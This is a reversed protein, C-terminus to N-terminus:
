VQAIVDKISIFYLGEKYPTKAVRNIVLRSGVSFVKNLNLITEEEITPYMKVYEDVLMFSHDMVEVIMFRESDDHKITLSTGEIKSEEIVERVLLYDYILDM